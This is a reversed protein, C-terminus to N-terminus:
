DIFQQLWDFLSPQHEGVFKTIFFLDSCYTVFIMRVCFLIPLDTKHIRLPPVVMGIPLICLWIHLLKGVMGTDKTVFLLEGDETLSIPTIM